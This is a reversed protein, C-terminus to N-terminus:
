GLLGDFMFNHRQQQPPWAQSLASLGDIAYGSSIYYRAHSGAVTPVPCCAVRLNTQAMWWVDCWVPSEGRVEADCICSVCLVAKSSIELVSVNACTFLAPAVRWVGWIGVVSSVGWIGVVSSPINALGAVVAYGDLVPCGYGRRDVYEVRMYTSVAMGRIGCSPLAVDQVSTM